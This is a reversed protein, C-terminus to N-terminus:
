GLALGVLAVEGGPQARAEGPVGESQVPLERVALAAAVVGEQVKAPVGHDARARFREDGPLVIQKARRRHLAGCRPPPTRLLVVGGPLRQARALLVARL